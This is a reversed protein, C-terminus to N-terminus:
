AKGLGWEILAGLDPLYNTKGTEAAWAKTVNEIRSQVMALTLRLENCEEMAEEYFDSRVYELVDRDDTKGDPNPDASWAM